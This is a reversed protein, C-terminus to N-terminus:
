LTVNLKNSRCRRIVLFIGLAVVWYIFSEVISGIVLERLTTASANMFVYFTLFSFVAPFIVIPLFLCAAVKRMQMQALFVVALLAASCAYAFNKILFYVFKSEIVDVTILKPALYNVASWCLLSISIFVFILKKSAM